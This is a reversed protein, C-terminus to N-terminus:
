IVSMEIANWGDFRRVNIVELQLFNYMTFQKLGISNIRLIFKAILAFNPFFEQGQKTNWTEERFRLIKKTQMLVPVCHKGHM